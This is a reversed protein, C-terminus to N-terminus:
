KPKEPNDSGSDPNDDPNDKPKDTDSQDPSDKPKDKDKKGEKEKENKQEIIESLKDIFKNLDIKLDINEAGELIKRNKKIEDLCASLKKSSWYKVGESEIKNNHGIFVNLQDKYGEGLLANLCKERFIYATAMKAKQLQETIIIQKKKTDSEWVKEINLIVFLLYDVAKDNSCDSLMNINELDQCLLDKLQEIYDFAQDNGIKIFGKLVSLMSQEQIKESEFHPSETINSFLKIAEKENISEATVMILSHFIEHYKPHEQHKLYGESLYKKLFNKVNLLNTNNKLANLFFLKERREALIYIWQDAIFFKELTAVTKDDNSKLINSVIKEAEQQDFSSTEILASLQKISSNINNENDDTDDAVVFSCLLCILIIVITNHKLSEM